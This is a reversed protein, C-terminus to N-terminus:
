FGGPDVANDNSNGGENPPPTPKTTPAPTSEPANVGTEDGPKNTPKDVVGNGGPKETEVPTPTKEPKSTVEVKPKGEPHKYDKPNSSKPVVCVGNDNPVQGPPCPKPTPPNTPTPTPTPTPKPTPKSTPTPKPKPKPNFDDCSAPIKGLMPRKDGTNFGLVSIPKCATKETLYFVLSPLNDSEKSIGVEPIGDARLGGAVLQYHHKSDISKVGALEYRSLLFIVKSAVKRYEHNAKLAEGYQEESPTDGPNQLKWEELPVYKAVLDDIESADVDFPKLWDTKQLELVSVGKVELNAFLHALSVGIVPEECIARKLWKNMEKKDSGKLPTSLADSWKRLDANKTDVGLLSKVFLPYTSDVVDGGTEKVIAPCDVIPASSADLLAKLEDSLETTDASEDNGSVKDASCNSLADAKAELAATLTKVSEMGPNQALIKQQEGVSLDTIKSATSRLNETTKAADEVNECSLAEVNSLVNYNENEAANSAATSCGSLTIAALAFALFIGALKAPFRTLSHM